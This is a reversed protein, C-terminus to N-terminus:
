CDRFVRPWTDLRAAPNIAGSCIRRPLRRRVGKGIVPFTPDPHEPGRSDPLVRRPARRSERYSGSLAGGLPGLPKWCGLPAPESDSFGVQYVEDGFPLFWFWLFDM